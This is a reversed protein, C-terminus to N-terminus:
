TFDRQGSLPIKMLDACVSEGQGKLKSSNMMDITTGEPPWFIVQWFAFSV